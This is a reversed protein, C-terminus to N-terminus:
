SVGRDRQAVVAPGAPGLGALIRHAAEGARRREIRVVVASADATMTALLPGTSLDVGRIGALERSM